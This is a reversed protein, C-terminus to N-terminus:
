DLRGNVVSIADHASNSAHSRRGIAGARPMAVLKSMGLSGVCGFGYYFFTQVVYDAVIV